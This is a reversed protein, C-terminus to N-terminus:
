RPTARRGRYAGGFAQGADWLEIALVLAVVAWPNVTPVTEWGARDAVVALFDPNIVRHDFALWAVISFSALNVALNTGALVFNWRRQALVVAQVAVSAALVALFAQAAGNWIDPHLFPVGEGDERLFPWRHQWVLLVGALATFVIGFVMESMSVLGPPPVTDSEGAWEISEPLDDPTWAGPDKWHHAFAYVLTVWFASQVVAHYAANLAAGLFGTLHPDDGFGAGVLSLVVLTPLAIGVVLKLVRLYEPFLEQGILARPKDIYNAALLNPDGLESLVAREITDSNEGSSSTTDPATPELTATQDRRAAILDDIMARVEKAVDLRQAPALNRTVAHVYRDTLTPTM